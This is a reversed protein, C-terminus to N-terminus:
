RGEPHLRECPCAGKTKEALIRELILSRGNNRRVDKEIDDDTYGFCYCVTKTM